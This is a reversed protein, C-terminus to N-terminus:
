GGPIVLAQGPYIVYPSALDNAEAIATWPIGYQLSIKFLTEGQAVTHTFQPAPGPEDVPIKLAQGVRIQDPNVLGNAEAIPVWTLGYKLGIRYLNDGPQVIYTTETAPSPTPEPTIAEGPQPIAIEDGVIINNPNTIGNYEALTVWSIGYQLGIRYLNEGPAVTHTDPLDAAPTEETETEEESEEAVEDEAATDEDEEAMEEEDDAEPVATATAEATPSPSPEPTATETAEVRPTDSTATEEPGPYATADAVPQEDEGADTGEDAPETTETAAPQGDEDGGDGGGPFPRECAVLLTAILALVVMWKWTYQRTDGAMM